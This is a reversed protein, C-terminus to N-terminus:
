KIGQPGMDFAQWFGISYAVLGFLIIPSTMFVSLFYKLSRRLVKHWIRLMRLMPIGFAFLRSKLLQYGMLRNQKRSLYFGIGLNKQKHYFHKLNTRHFHTVVISSDFYLRKGLGKLRFSFLDDEATVLDPFGGAEDFVIRPMSLNVAPFMEVEEPRREPLYEGFEMFYEATSVFNRAYGNKVAGCVVDVNKDSQHVRHIRELWDSEAAADTDIFALLKGKAHRVGLNRAEGPLLQTQSHIWRVGPFQEVIAPGLESESSDAVIIEFSLATEQNVISNLCHNLFEGPNYSPIIVSIDVGKETVGPGTM